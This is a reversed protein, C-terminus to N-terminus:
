LSEVEALPHVRYQRKTALDICKFHKRLQPGKKFTKGKLVFHTDEALDELHTVKKSDYKKLVKQLEMDTCSSAKPNQLYVLLADQVDVPFDRIYKVLLSKFQQKWEQGHPKIKRWNYNIYCLLHALEHLLTVAFAYPNLNSNITIVPQIHSANSARFDGLKTKRPKVIKLQCNHKELISLVEDPKFYPPLYNVLDSM